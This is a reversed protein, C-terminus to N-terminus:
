VDVFCGNSILLVGNDEASLSRRLIFLSYPSTTANLRGRANESLTYVPIKKRIGNGDFFDLKCKSRQSGSDQEFITATDADMPRSQLSHAFTLKHAISRSQLTQAIRVALAQCIALHHTGPDEPTTAAMVSGIKSILKSNFTIFARKSPLTCDFVDVSRTAGLNPLDKVQENTFNELNMPQIAKSAVGKSFHAALRRWGHITYGPVNVQLSAQSHSTLIEAVVLRAGARMKRSVAFKAATADQKQVSIDYNIGQALCALCSPQLTQQAVTVFGKEINLTERSQTDGYEISIPIASYVHKQAHLKM